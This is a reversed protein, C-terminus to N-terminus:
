VFKQTYLFPFEDHNKKNAKIKVISKGGVLLLMNASSSYEQQLALGYPVMTNMM